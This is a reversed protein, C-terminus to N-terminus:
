TQWIHIYTRFCYIHDQSIFLLVNFTPVNNHLNRSRAPHSVDYKQRKLKESLDFKEAELGMLWQWLESAKERCVFCVCTMIFDKLCANVISTFGKCLTTM